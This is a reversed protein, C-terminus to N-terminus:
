WFLDASARVFAANIRNWNVTENVLVEEAVEEYENKVISNFLNQFVRKAFGDLSGLLPRCAESKIENNDLRLWSVEYDEYVECAGAKVRKKLEQLRFVKEMDADVFLEKVESPVQNIFSKKDRFYFFSRSLKDKAKRLQCEIELETVSAGAQYQALWAHEPRRTQPYVSLTHGYRDGLIGIFYDCELVQDLCIELTQNDNAQKETVGWRMDIEHVDIM